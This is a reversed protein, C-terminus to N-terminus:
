GQWEQELIAYRFSDRWRGRHWMNERLRGERRMGVKELVRVSAVNCVDCEAFIRHLGLAGFGLELLAPVAETAYGNGWSDQGCCYGVVGERNAVLNVRLRCGGIPREDAKQIIAFECM